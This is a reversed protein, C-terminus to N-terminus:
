TSANTLCSAKLTRLLLSCCCASCSPPCQWTSSTESACLELMVLLQPVAIAAFGKKEWCPPHLAVGEMSMNPHM